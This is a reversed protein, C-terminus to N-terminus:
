TSGCGGPYLSRSNPATCPPIWRTIRRANGLRVPSGPRAGDFRRPTCPGFRGVRIRCDIFQRSSRRAKVIEPTGFRNNPEMEGASGSSRRRDTSHACSPPVSEGSLDEDRSGCDSCFPQMRRAERSLRDWAADYGIKRPRKREVRGRRDHREQERRCPDCRPGSGIVTGCDICTKM